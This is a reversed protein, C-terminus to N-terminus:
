ELGMESGNQESINIYTYVAEHNLGVLRLFIHVDIPILIGYIQVFLVHALGGVLIM